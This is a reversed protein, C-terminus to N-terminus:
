EGETLSALYALQFLIQVDNTAAQVKAELAQLNANQVELFSLRGVKYSGYILKAREQSEKVLNNYIEVKEQFGNLQDKSKNWDRLLDTFVSERQHESVLAMNQKEAAEYNFRNSEFLPISLNLGITNQHIQEQIPGNPYDLSTKAMFSLKPLKNAKLSEAMHRASEANNAHMKVLPHHQIIERDPKM